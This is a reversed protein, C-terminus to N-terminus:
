LFLEIDIEFASVPLSLDFNRLVNPHLVGLRGISRGSPMIIIDACRGPLYTSDALYDSIRTIPLGAKPSIISLVGKFGGGLNCRQLKKGEIEELRYALCKPDSNEGYAVELVHM